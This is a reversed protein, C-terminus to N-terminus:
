SVPPARSSWSILWGAAPRSHDAHRDLSVGQTEAPLYIIADYIVAFALLSAARGSALCYACCKSQNHDHGQAPGHGGDPSCLAGAAEATPSFGPADAWKLLGFLPAFQLALM